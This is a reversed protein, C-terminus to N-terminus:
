DCVQPHEWMPGLKIEMVVAFAQINLENESIGEVRVKNKWGQFFEQLHQSGCAAQASETDQELHSWHFAFQFFSCNSSSTRTMVM